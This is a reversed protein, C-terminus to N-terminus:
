THLINPCLSRFLLSKLGIMDLQGLRVQRRREELKAQALTKTVVGTKGVSEWKEKGNVAYRIYWYPTNSGDKSKIWRKFVGM